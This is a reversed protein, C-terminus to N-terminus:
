RVSEQEIVHRRVANPDSGIPISVRRGDDLEVATMGDPPQLLDNLVLTASQTGIPLPRAQLESKAM